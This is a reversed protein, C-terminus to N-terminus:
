FSLGLQFIIAKVSPYLEHQALQGLAQDGNSYPDQQYYELRYSAKTGDALTHGIKIGFTYTNMNGIRYDASAFEPLVEESKLFVRYFHAAEQRYYRLHLQGFFSSTFNYRYHSEFTHSAVGWDDYSYRYALDTVGTALAHKSFLYLSQKLREDPRSEYFYAERTGSADVLSLVKYPDTMYGQLSSLNYSLQVLMHRNIIQTLGVSLDVTQKDTSAIQRTKDFETRFEAHSDFDDRFVMNSMALPRGGVPDVLDYYYAMGLSLQTNNKNFSRALASNIGMSTYDYERSLYVGHNSSWDLSWIEAWNGSLQVRTDKFTDDLPTNGSNITYEGNGSPRTFTQRQDQPVAGNASSGTLTDLVLKAEYIRKDGLPLKLNFIGEAVTVRDQELYYLLAADIKPSDIEVADLSATETASAVSSTMSLLAFSAMSLADAISTGGDGAGTKLRSQTYAQSETLTQNATNGPTKTAVM